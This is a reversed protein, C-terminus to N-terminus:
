RGGSAGGDSLQSSLNVKNAGAMKLLEIGHYIQQYNAQQDGSVYVDIGVHDKLYQTAVEEVQADQLPSDPTPSINLFYAGQSNVTLILPMTLDETDNQSSTTDSSSRPLDVEVSRQILPAAVMFIILLVLMVDIYPVVNMESKTRRARRVRRAMM